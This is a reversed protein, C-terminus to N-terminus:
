GFTGILSLHYHFASLLAEDYHGCKSYPCISSDLSGLDTQAVSMLKLNLYFSFQPMTLCDQDLRLRRIMTEIRSRSTTYLQTFVNLANATGVSCTWNRAGVNPPKRSVGTGSGVGGEPRWPWTFARSCMYVLLYFSMCLFIISFKFLIFSSQNWAKMRAETEQTHVQPTMSCGGSWSSRQSRRWHSRWKLCLIM